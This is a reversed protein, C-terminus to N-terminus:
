EKIPKVNAWKSPTPTSAKTNSSSSSKTTKTPTVADSKYADKSILELSTTTGSSGKSLVVSKILLMEDIGFVTDKVYVLQNPKWLEGNKNLWGQVTYNVSKSKAIDYNAQFNSREVCNQATANGTLKINKFRPRIFTDSQAIYSQSCEKASKNGDNAQQGYSVYNSFCSSVDNKFNATLINYGTELSDSAISSGVKEIVIGGHESDMVVLNELLLLKKISAAVTDTPTVTFSTVQNGLSADITTRIDYPACLSEIIQSVKTTNWSNECETASSLSSSSTDSWLLSSTKKIATGKPPSNCDCLDATKSRGTVQISLSTANYSMPVADVYGTLVKIDNIFVECTDGPSIPILRTNPFTRTVELAFARALRDISAQISVKLWGEYSQGNVKLYCKEDM